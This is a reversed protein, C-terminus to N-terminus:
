QMNEHHVYEALIQGGAERKQLGTKSQKHHRHDSSDGEDEAEAHDEANLFNGDQFVDHRLIQGRGLDSSGIWGQAKWNKRM